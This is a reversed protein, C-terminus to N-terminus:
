SLRTQRFEARASDSMEAIAIRAVTNAEGLDVIGPM